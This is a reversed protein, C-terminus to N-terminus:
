HKLAAFYLLGVFCALLHNTFNMNLQYFLVLNSLLWSELLLLRSIIHATTGPCQPLNCAKEQHSSGSCPPKICQRHRSKMAPSLANTCTKTCPSWSSWPSFGVDEDLSPPPPFLCTKTHLTPFSPQLCPKFYVYCIVIGHVM